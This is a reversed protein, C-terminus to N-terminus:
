SVFVTESTAVIINNTVVALSAAVDFVEVHDHLTSRAFEFAEDFKVFSAILKRDGYVTYKLM